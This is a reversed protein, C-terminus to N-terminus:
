RYRYLVFGILFIFVKVSCKLWEDRFRKKLFIFGIKKRKSVTKLDDSEIGASGM